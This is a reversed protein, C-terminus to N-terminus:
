ASSRIIGLRAEERASRANMQSGAPNLREAYDHVTGGKAAHADRDSSVMSSLNRIQGHMRLRSSDPGNAACMSKITTPLRGRM